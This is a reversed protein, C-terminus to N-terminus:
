LIVGILLVPWFAMVFLGVALASYPPAQFKEGDVRELESPRSWVEFTAALGGFLLSVAAYILIAIKM